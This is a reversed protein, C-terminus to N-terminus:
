NRRRKLTISLVKGGKKKICMRETIRVEVDEQKKSAKVSFIADILRSANVYHKRDFCPNSWVQCPHRDGMRSLYVLNRSM